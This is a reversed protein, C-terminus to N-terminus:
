TCATGIAGAGIQAHAEPRSWEYSDVNYAETGVRECFDQPLGAATCADHSITQHVSQDLAFATAPATVITVIVAVSRRGMCMAVLAGDRVHRYGLRDIRVSCRLELPRCCCEGDGVYVLKVCMDPNSIDM